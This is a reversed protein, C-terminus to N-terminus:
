ARATPRGSRTTTARRTSPSGPACVASSISSGSTRPARRRTSFSSPPPGATRPSRSRTTTPRTGAWGTWRDDPRSRLVAARRGREPSGTMYLLVGNDTASFVGAGTLPRVIIDEALPVAEGTFELGDPDFPQAMLMNERVYLLHGSSYWASAPSSVIDKGTGGEDLGVVRVVSTHDGASSRAYYSFTSGTRSFARCVTRTTGPRATSSPSPLRSAAWRRSGTCRRERSRRSLRHRRRREVDRGQRRARRLHDIRSWGDGQDEQAQRQGRFRDM